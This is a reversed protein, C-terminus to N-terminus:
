YTYTDALATVITASPASQIDSDIITQVKKILKELSLVVYYNNTTSKASNLKNLTEKRKVPPTTSQTRNMHVAVSRLDDNMASEIDFASTNMAWAYMWLIMAFAIAIAERM